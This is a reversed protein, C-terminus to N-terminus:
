SSFVSTKNFEEIVAGTDKDVIKINCHYDTSILFIQYSNMCLSGVYDVVVSASDDSEYAEKDVRITIDTYEINNAICQDFFPYTNILSLFTQSLERRKESMFSNHVSATMKLTVNGGAEDATVSTFGNDTCYLQLDNQYKADLSFIYNYPIVVTVESMPDTTGQFSGSTPVIETVPNGSEDYDVIVEIGDAADTQTTDADSGTATDKKGCAALSALLFVTLTIALLKKM